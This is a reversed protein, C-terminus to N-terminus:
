GRALLEDLQAYGAEMGDTMGEKLFADLTEVSEFVSHDVIRARGDPLSEFRIVDISVGDQWGEYEFTQIIIENERVTHFVGRFAFVEGKEDRQEFRYSGGTRFDWDTVTNEYSGPGIWQAFLDKDAHARFLAEVPADFERTIDAYSTGPVTDIVVPNTM